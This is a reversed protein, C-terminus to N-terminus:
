LGDRMVINQTVVNQIGVMTLAGLALFFSLSLWPVTLFLSQYIATGSHMVLKEDAIIYRVLAFFGTEHGNRLCLQLSYLLGLSVGLLGVRMSVDLQRARLRKEKQIRTVIVQELLPNSEAETFFSRFPNNM